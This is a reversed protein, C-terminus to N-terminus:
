KKSIRNWAGKVILYVFASIVSIGLSIVVIWVPTSNEKNKESSQADTVIAALQKNKIVRQQIKGLLKNTQQLIEKSNDAEEIAIWEEEDKLEGILFNQQEWNKSIIKKSSQKIEEVREVREVLLKIFLDTSEKVAQEKEEKTNSEAVKKDFLRVVDKIKEVLIDDEEISALSPKKPPKSFSLNDKGVSSSNGEGVDYNFLAITSSHGSGGGDGGNSSSYNSNDEISRSPEYNNSTSRSVPQNDISENNQHSQSDSSYSYERRLNQEVIQLAQHRTIELPNFKYGSLNAYKNDTVTQTDHIEESNGNWGNDYAIRANKPTFHKKVWDLTEENRVNFIRTCDAGTLNSGPAQVFSVHYADYKNNVLPDIGDEYTTGDWTIKGQNATNANGLCIPSWHKNYASWADRADAFKEYWGYIENFTLTNNDSDTQSFVHCYSAKAFSENEWDYDKWGAGLDIKKGGDNTIQIQDPSTWGQQFAKFAQKADILHSGDPSSKRYDLINADTLEDIPEQDRFDHIFLKNKLANELEGENTLNYSRGAFNAIGGNIERALIKHSYAKAAIEASDLGSNTLYADITNNDIDNNEVRIKFEKRFVLKTKKDSLSNKLDSIKKGTPLELRYFNLDNELDSIQSTLETETNRIDEWKEIFQSFRDAEKEVLTQPTQNCFSNIIKQRIVEPEALTLILPRTPNYSIEEYTKKLKEWTNADNIEEILDEYKKLKKYREERRNKLFFLRKNTPLLDERLGQIKIDLDAGEALLLFDTGKAIATNIEEWKKEEAKLENIRTQVKDKWGVNEIQIEIQNLAIKEEIAGSNSIRELEKVANTIRVHEPETDNMRAWLTKFSDKIKRKVDDWKKQRSERIEKQKEKINAKSMSELFNEEQSTLGFPINFNNWPKGMDDELLALARILKLEKNDVDNKKSEYANSEVDSLSNNYEPILKKLNELDTKLDERRDATAKSILEQLSNEAMIVQRKEKIEKLTIELANLKEQESSKYLINNIVNTLDNYLVSPNECILANNIGKEVIDKFVSDRFSIVKEPTEKQSLETLFEPYTLEQTGVRFIELSEDLFLKARRVVRQAEEKNITKLIKQLYQRVTTSENWSIFISSKEKDLQSSIKRRQDVSIERGYIDKLFQPNHRNNQLFEKLEDFWTEVDKKYNGLVLGSKKTRKKNWLTKADKNLDYEGPYFNGTSRQNEEFKAENILNVLREQESNIEEKTLKSKIISQWNILVQEKTKGDIEGSVDQNDSWCTNITTIAVTHWSERTTQITKEKVILKILHERKTDIDVKETKALIEEEWGISLIDVLTKGNVKNNSDVQSEWFDRVAKISSNHLANKHNEKAKVQRILNLYYNWRDIISRKGTRKKIDKEWTDPLLSDNLVEEKSKGDIKDNTQKENWYENIRNIANNQLDTDTKKADTIKKIFANKKTKIDDNKKLSDFDSQWSGDLVETITQDNIKNEATVNENWHEEIKEIAVKQWGVIERTKETDILEKLCNKETNIEEVTPKNKLIEEWDLPLIGTKDKGNIKGDTTESNWYNNVYEIAERSTNELIIKNRQDDWAKELKDRTKEGDLNTWDLNDIETKYDANADKEKGIKELLKEYEEIAQQKKAIIKTEQVKWANELKKKSRDGPLDQYNFSNIQNNLGQLVVLDVANNIDDNLLKDYTIKRHEARKEREQAEKKEKALRELVVRRNRKATEIKEQTRGGRLGQCNLQDLSIEEPNASAEIEKLLDDYAQEQQALEKEKRAKEEQEQKERTEQEAKKAAKEEVLRAAVEAVLREQELREAELRAVESEQDQNILLLAKIRRKNETLLRATIEGEVKLLDQQEQPLSTFAKKTEEEIEKKLIEVLGELVKKIRAVLVEDSGSSTSIKECINRVAKARIDEAQGWNNADFKLQAEYDSGLDLGNKIKKLNSPTKIVSPKAFEAFILDDLYKIIAKKEIESIPTSTLEDNFSSGSSGEIEEEALEQEKKELEKVLTELQEKLYNLEGGKQAFVSQIVKEGVIVQKPGRIGNQLVVVEAKYNEEKELDLLSDLKALFDRIEQENKSSVLLNNGEEITEEIRKLLSIKVERVEGIRWLIEKYLILEQKNVESNGKMMLGKIELKELKKICNIKGPEDLEERTLSPNKSLEKEEIRQITKSGGRKESLKKAESILTGVDDIISLYFKTLEIAEYQSIEDLVEQCFDGIRILEVKAGKRKHFQSHEDRGWSKRGYDNLDEWTLDNLKLEDQLILEISKKFEEDVLGGSKKIKSLKKRNLFGESDRLLCLDYKTRKVKDALVKYAKDMLEFGEKNGGPRDPHLELSLKKHKRKIEAQTAAESLGLNEYYRNSKERVVAEKNNYEELLGTIILKWRGLDAETGNSMCNAWYNEEGQYSPNDSFMSMEVNIINKLLLPEPNKEIEESLIKIEKAKLLDTKWLISIKSSDTGERLNELHKEWESDSFFEGYNQREEEWVRKKTAASSIPSGYDFNIEIWNMVVEDNSGLNRMLYLHNLWNNYIKRQEPSSYYLMEKADLGTKDINKKISKIDYSIAFELSEAVEEKILDGFEEESFGFYKKTPWEDSLMEYAEQIRKFKSKSEESNGNKEPHHQLSLERYVKKIELETNDQNLGLIEYAENKTVTM